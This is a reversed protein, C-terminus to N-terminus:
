CSLAESFSRRGARLADRVAFALAIEWIARDLKGGTIL